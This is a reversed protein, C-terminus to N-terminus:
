SIGIRRAVQAWDADSLAAQAAARLISFIEPPAMTLGGLMEAREEIDMAPLMHTIVEAMEEPPLSGRIAMDVAVLEDTPVAARLAPMVETEEILQHALYVSALRSLDLYLNLAAGARGPRGVTGLRRGREELRTMADELDGHQAAIALALSSAHRELLPQVFVDEHHHHGHLLFSEVADVDAVELSGARLTTHFLAHRIGKHIQRYFDYSDADVLDSDASWTPTNPLQITTM